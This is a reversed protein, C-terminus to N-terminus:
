FNYTINPTIYPLGDWNSFTVGYGLKGVNYVMGIGYEIFTRNSTLYTGYGFLGTLMVNGIPQSVTGKIESFYDNIHDTKSGLGRLSGRGFVIGVGLNGYMVGGELGLYSSTKFDTVNQGVNTMSLGTSLYYCAKTKESTSDSHCQGFSLTAVFLALFTFITKM